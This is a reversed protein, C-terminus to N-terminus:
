WWKERLEIEVSKMCGEEINEFKINNEGRKLTPFEGLMSRNALNGNEDRCELEETDLVLVRRSTFDLECIKENNIKLGVKGSANMRIKPKMEVSSSNYVRIEEIKESKYKLTYDKKFFPQVKFRVQLDCFFRSTPEITIESTIKAETYRDAKYEEGSVIILKGEKGPRLWELLRDVNVKRRDYNMKIDIEYPKYSYDKYRCGDMYENEIEKYNQEATRRKLREKFKIGYEKTSIGDFVFYGDM